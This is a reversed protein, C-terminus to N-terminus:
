QERRVFIKRAMLEDAEEETFGDEQRCSICLKAYEVGLDDVYEKVRYGQESGCLHCRRKEDKWSM